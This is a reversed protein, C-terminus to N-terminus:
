LRVSAEARRKAADLLVRRILGSFPAIVVWYLRFARDARSTATEIWTETSLVSGSPTTMVRYNGVARMAAREIAFVIERPPDEGLIRFSGTSFFERVTMDTRYPVGRVGFLLRVIPVDRLSVRLAAEYTRAAPASTHVRYHSLRWAHPGLYLAILANEM